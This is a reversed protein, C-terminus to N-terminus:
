NILMAEIESVKKLTSSPRKKQKEMQEQSLLKWSQFRWPFFAHPSDIEMSCCCSFIQSIQSNLVGCCCDIIHYASAASKGNNPGTLDICLTSNESWFLSWALSTMLWWIASALIESPHWCLSLGKYIQLDGHSHHWSHSKGKSSRLWHSKTMGHNQNTSTAANAPVMCSLRERM